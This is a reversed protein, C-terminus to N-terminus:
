VLFAINIQQNKRKQNIRMLEIQFFHAIKDGSLLATDYPNLSELSIHEM